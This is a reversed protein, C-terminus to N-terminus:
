GQKGDPIHGLEPRPRMDMGSASGLSELFAEQQKFYRFKTDKGRQDFM